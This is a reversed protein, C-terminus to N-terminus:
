LVQPLHPIDILLLVTTEGIIRTPHNGFATMNVTTPTTKIDPVIYSPLINCQARTLLFVCKQHGGGIIVDRCLEDIFEIFYLLCCDDSAPTTNIANTAPKQSLATVQRPRRQMASPQQNPCVIQYHGIKGCKRCEAKQVTCTPSNALYQTSGCRFCKTNSSSRDPRNRM